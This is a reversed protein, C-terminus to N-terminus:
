LININFFDLRINIYHHGSEEDRILNEQQVDFNYDQSWTDKLADVATQALIKLRPYNPQNPDQAGDEVQITINPVFVNVNIVVSQMQLNNAPLSNIVVDEKNSGLPRLTKYIKGNIATKLSSVNLHQWILDIIEFTTKM